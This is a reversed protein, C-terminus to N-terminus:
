VIAIRNGVGQGRRFPTATMHSLVDAYKGMYRHLGVLILRMPSSYCSCASPFDSEVRFLIYGLLLVATEEVVMKGVRRHRSITGM